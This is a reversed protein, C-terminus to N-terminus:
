RLHTVGAACEACALGYRCRGRQLRKITQERATYPRKGRNALSQQQAGVRIRCQACARQAGEEANGRCPMNNHWRQLGILGGVAMLQCARKPRQSRLDGLVDSLLVVYLTAYRRDAEVSIVNSTYHRIHYPNTHDPQKQGKRGEGAPKQLRAPGGAQKPDAGHRRNRWCQWTTPNHLSSGATPRRSSDIAQAGQGDMAQVNRKITAHDLVPPMCEPAGDGQRQAM